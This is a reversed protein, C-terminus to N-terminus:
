KLDEGVDRRGGKKPLGNNEIGKLIMEMSQGFPGELCRRVDSLLDAPRARLSRQIPKGMALAGLDRADEESLRLLSQRTEHLRKLEHPIDAYLRTRHELYCPTCLPVPKLGSTCRQCPAKLDHGALWKEFPGSERQM